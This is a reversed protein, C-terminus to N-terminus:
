DPKSVRLDLHLRDRQNLSPVILDGLSRLPDKKRIPTLGITVTYTFRLSYFGGFDPGTEKQALAIPQLSDTYLAVALNLAGKWALDFQIDAVDPLKLDRAISATKVAYFAGDRYTWQGSEGPAPAASVARTWGDLGTIGDFVAPSRRMF